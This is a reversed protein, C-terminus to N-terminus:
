LEAVLVTGVFPVRIEGNADTKYLGLSSLHGFNDDVYEGSAYSLKFEVGALPESSLKDLKKIVLYGTEQNVLRLTQGQEGAKILISKPSNDLVVGDPVSIERVTVTTGPELNPIVIRGNEDSTFEGNSSGLVAGTQDTVLFVAGKLPKEGSETKLYKEITLTVKPVNEVVVNNGGSNTGGASSNGGSTTGSGTGGTVVSNGSGNRVIITRPTPDLVYNVPVKTEVVVVTSNPILGTVTM